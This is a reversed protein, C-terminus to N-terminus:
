FVSLEMIHLFHPKFRAFTITNLIHNLESQVLTYNKTLTDCTDLLTLQAEYIGLDNPIDYIGVKNFKKWTATLTNTIETLITLM